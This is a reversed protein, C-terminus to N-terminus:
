PDQEIRKTEDLRRAGELLLTPLPTRIRDEGDVDGARFDFRGSTRGLLEYVLEGDAPAPRSDFSARLLQGKRVFLRVKEGEPDLILVVTGTKREMELLTLLTPLGVDELKGRFATQSPAVSFDGSTGAAPRVAQDAKSRERLARHISLDLQAPDLPKGIFGDAGLRFGSIRKELAAPEGLFIAPILATTPRTRLVRVFDVGKLRPTAADVVLLDPILRNALKLAEEPDATATLAYGRSAGVASLVRTTAPDADLLLVHTAM